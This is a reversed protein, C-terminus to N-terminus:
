AGLHFQCIRYRFALVTVYDLDAWTTPLHDMEMIHKSHHIIIIIKLSRGQRRGRQCDRAGPHLIHQSVPEQIGSEQFKQQLGIKLKHHGHMDNPMRPPEVKADQPVGHAIRPRAQFMPSSLSPCQLTWAPIKDINPQNLHGM